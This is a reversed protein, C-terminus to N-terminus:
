GFSETLTAMWLSVLRWLREWPVEAALGDKGADTDPLKMFNKLKHRAHAFTWSKFDPMTLIGEAGSAQWATELGM